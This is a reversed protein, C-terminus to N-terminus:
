NRNDSTLLYLRKVSFLLHDLLQSAVSQIILKIM